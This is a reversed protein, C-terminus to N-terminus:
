YKWKAKGRWLFQQNRRSTSRMEKCLVKFVCNRRIAVGSRRSPQSPSACHTAVPFTCLPSGPWVPWQPAPPPRCPREQMLDARALRLRLLCPSFYGESCCCMLQLWSSFALSAVVATLLWWGWQCCGTGIGPSLDLRCVHLLFDNPLTQAFLIFTRPSQYIHPNINTQHRIVPIHQDSSHLTGQHNCRSDSLMVGCTVQYTLFCICFWVKNWELWIGKDLGKRENCNCQTTIPINPLFSFLFSVFIVKSKVSLKMCSSIKPSLQVPRLFAFM